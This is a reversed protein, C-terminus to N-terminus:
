AAKEDLMARVTAAQDATTPYPLIAIITPLTMGCRYGRDCYCEEFGDLDEGAVGVKGLTWAVTADSGAIGDADDYSTGDVIAGTVPHIGNNGTAIAGAITLKMGVAPPGVYRTTPTFVMKPAGMSAFVGGTGADAAFTVVYYGDGPMEVLDADPPLGQSELFDNISDVLDPSTVTGGPMGHIRTRLAETDEGDARMTGRDRAHEGVWDPSTPKGDADLTWGDAKLIFTQKALWDAAVAKIGAFIAACAWLYENARADTAYWDPLANVAWDYLEQEDVTPDSM